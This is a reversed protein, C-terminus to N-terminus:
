RETFIRHDARYAEETSRSCDYQKLDGWGERGGDGEDIQAIRGREHCAHTEVSSEKSNGGNGCLRQRRGSQSGQGAVARPYVEDVSPPDAVLRVDRQVSTGGGGGDCGCIEDREVDTDNLRIKQRM